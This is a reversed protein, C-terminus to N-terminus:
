TLTYNYIIIFLFCVEALEFATSAEEYRETSELVKAYQM